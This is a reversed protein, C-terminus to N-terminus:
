FRDYLGHLILIDRMADMSSGLESKTIVNVGQLEGSM